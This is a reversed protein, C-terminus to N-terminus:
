KATALITVIGFVSARMDRSLERHSHYGNWKLWIHLCEWDDALIASVTEVYDGAPRVLPVALPEKDRGHRLRTRIQEISQRSRNLTEAVEAVPMDMTEQVFAKDEDSWFEGKPATRPRAM